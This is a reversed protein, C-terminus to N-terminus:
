NAAKEAMESQNAEGSKGNCNMYGYHEDPQGYM